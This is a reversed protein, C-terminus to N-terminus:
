DIVDRQGHFLRRISNDYEIAEDEFYFKTVEMRGMIYNDEFEEETMKSISFDRPDIDFVMGEETDQAFIYASYLGEHEVNKKFEYCMAYRKKRGGWLPSLTIFLPAGEKYMNSLNEKNKIVKNWYETIRARFTSQFENLGHMKENIRDFSYDSFYREYISFNQAERELNWVFGSDALDEDVALAFSKIDEITSEVKDNLSKVLELKKKNEKRNKWLM